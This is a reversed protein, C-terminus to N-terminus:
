TLPLRRSLIPALHAVPPSFAHSARQTQVFRIAARKRNLRLRGDSELRPVVSTIPAGM